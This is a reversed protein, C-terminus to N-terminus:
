GCIPSEMVWRHSLTEMKDLTCKRLHVVLLDGCLRECCKGAWLINVCTEGSHFGCGVSAEEQALALLYVWEM